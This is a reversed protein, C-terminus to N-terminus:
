QGSVRTASKVTEIFDSRLGFSDQGKANAALASIEQLSYHTVYKGNLLKEGFAAVSGAFRFNDSTSNISTIINKVSIDTEYFVEGSSVSRLRIHILHNPDADNVDNQESDDRGDNQKGKIVFEYLLPINKGTLYVTRYSESRELFSNNGSTLARHYPIRATNFELTVEIVGYNQVANNVIGLHLVQTGSNWPAPGLEVYLPSSSPYDYSFYQIMEQVHIADPPPLQGTSLHYKTAEYSNDPIIEAEPAMLPAFNPTAEGEDRDGGPDDYGHSDKEYAGGEEKGGEFPIATEATDKDFGTEAAAPPTAEDPIIVPPPAEVAPEEHPPEIDEENPIDVELEDEIIPIFEEEPPIYEEENNDVITLEEFSTLFSVDFDDDDDDDDDDSMVEAHDDDTEHINDEGFGVYVGADRL